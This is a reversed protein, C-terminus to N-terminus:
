GTKNNGLRQKLTSKRASFRFRDLLLSYIPLLIHKRRIRFIKQELYLNYSHIASTRFNSYLDITGPLETISLNLGPSDFVTHSANEDDGLNSVLNTPPLACLWGRMFFEAALPTDWTDVKGDLVRNASVVWFNHKTSFVTSSNLRKKNLMGPRMIGWRNKWTSWGWIMPYNSWFVSASNNGLGTLETGSIVFVRPDDKFHTLCTRSFEFFGSSVILDDELIHGCEVNSFFWDIASIVGVGVGLNRDHKLIKLNINPIDRFSNVVNVIQEQRFKFSVTKPGDIAVYIDLVNNTICTQILHRVGDPRAYAIILVPYNRTSTM